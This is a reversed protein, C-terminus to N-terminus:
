KFFDESNIAKDDIWIDYVPKKMRIEDYKCGWAALQSHTKDTWDIGSNGGRATWYIVTHGADYLENIKKIREPLPKSNAYDSGESVCITNDIDVMYVSM